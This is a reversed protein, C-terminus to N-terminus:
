HNKGALLVYRYKGKIEKFFFKGWSPALAMDDALQGPVDYYTYSVGTKFILTLKREKPDYYFSNIVDSKHAPSETM